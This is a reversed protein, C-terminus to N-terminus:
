DPFVEVAVTQGKSGKVPPTPGGTVTDEGGSLKLTKTNGGTVNLPVVTTTVVSAAVRVVKIMGPVVKAGTVTVKVGVGSVLAGHGVLAVVTVVVAVERLGMDEAVAGRTM